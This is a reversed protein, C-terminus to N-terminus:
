YIGADKATKTMGKARAVTEIAMILVALDNDKATEDFYLTQLEDSDLYEAANFKTLNEM